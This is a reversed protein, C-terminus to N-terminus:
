SSCSSPGRPRVVGQLYFFGRARACDDLGRTNAVGGASDWRGRSCYTPTYMIQLGYRMYLQKTTMLLGVDGECKIENIFMRIPDDDSRM